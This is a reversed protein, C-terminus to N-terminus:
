SPTGDLTTKVFAAPRIVTFALAQEILLFLKNLKPYTGYQDYIRFMANLANWIVCGLRFSGSLVTLAAIVPTEVPVSRWVRQPSGGSQIQSFVYQGNSGKLTEIDEWDAPNIVFADSPFFSLFVVTFSRRLADLKTDGPEGSSQSYTGIDSDNLIGGLENPETSDGNLIQNELSLELFEGMRGRLYGELMTASRAMQKSISMWTALTKITETLEETGVESQPKVEAEATFKFETSSVKVGAAHTNGLNTACVITGTTMNISAITNTEEGSEGPDVTITSGVIFGGALSKAIGDQTETGLVLNKQGSAAQSELPAFIERTVNERPALVSLVDGVDVSPILDLLRRPRLPDMIVQQYQYAQVLGDLETSTMEKKGVTPATYLGAGTKQHRPLLIGGPLKFPTEMRKASRESVFAKYEESKVFLSLADEPPVIGPGHMEQRKRDLSLNDVAQKVSAMDGVVQEWRDNLADMKKGTELTAKGIAKREAKETDLAGLVKTGLTEFDSTLTEIDRQYDQVDPM